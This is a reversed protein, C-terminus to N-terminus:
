EEINVATPTPRDGQRVGSTRAQASQFEFRVRDTYIYSIHTQSMHVFGHLYAHM